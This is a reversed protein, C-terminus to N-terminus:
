RSSSTSIERLAAPIGANGSGLDDYSVRLGEHDFILVGGILFLRVQATAAASDELAHSHLNHFPQQEDGDQNLENREAVVV